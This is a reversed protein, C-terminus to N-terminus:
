EWVTGAHNAHAFLRPEADRERGVGVAAVALKVGENPRLEREGFRVAVDCSRTGHGGRHRVAQVEAAGLVGLDHPLEGSRYFSERVRAESQLYGDRAAVNREIVLGAIRRDVRSGH